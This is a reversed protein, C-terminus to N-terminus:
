NMKNETTIFLFNNNKFKSIICFYFLFNVVLFFIFTMWKKKVRMFFDIEKQMGSFITWDILHLNVLANLAKKHVRCVSVKLFLLYTNCM